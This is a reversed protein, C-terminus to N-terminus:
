AADTFRWQFVVHAPRKAGVTVPQVFDRVVVTEGAKLAIEAVAFSFQLVQYVIVWKCVKLEAVGQPLNYLLAPVTFHQLIIYMRYLVYNAQKMAPM